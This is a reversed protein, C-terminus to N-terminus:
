FLGGNKEKKTEVENRSWPEKKRKEDGREETKATLPLLCVM